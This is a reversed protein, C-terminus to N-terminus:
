RTKRTRQLVGDLALTDGASERWTRHECVHCSTFDVPTGDTLTMSIRTVRDSGCGECAIGRTLLPEARLGSDDPLLASRASSVAPTSSVTSSRRPM